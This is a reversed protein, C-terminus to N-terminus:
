GASGFRVIEAGLGLAVILGVECIKALEHVEVASGIERLTHVTDGVAQLRAEGLVPPRHIPHAV